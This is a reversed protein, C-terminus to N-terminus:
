ARKLVKKLEDIEDLVICMLTSLSAYTIAVMYELAQVPDKAYTVLVIVMITYILTIIYYWM